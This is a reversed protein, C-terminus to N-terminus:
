VSMAAWSTAVEDLPIELTEVFRATMMYHGVILTLEAIQTDDYYKRVKEFTKDSVKVEAVCEEVFELITAERETALTGSEILSIEKETWGSKLALSYHQMKEYASHSLSGVRMIIMERDKNELKGAPFSSGLSLYGKASCSTALLGLTLNAPFRAYQEKQSDTLKALEPITIRSM